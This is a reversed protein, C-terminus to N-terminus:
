SLTESIFAAATAIALFAAWFYEVLSLGRKTKPSQPAAVFSGLKPCISKSLM